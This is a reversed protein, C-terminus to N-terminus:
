KATAYLDQWSKLLLSVAVAAPTHHHARQRFALNPSLVYGPRADAAGINMGLFTPEAQRRATKAATKWELGMRTCSTTVLRQL